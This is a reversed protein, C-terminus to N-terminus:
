FTSVKPLHGTRLPDGVKRDNRSELPKRRSRTTSEIHRSAKPTEHQRQRVEDLSPLQAAPAGPQPPSSNVKKAKDNRSAGNPEQPGSGKGSSSQLPVITLASLILAFSISLSTWRICLAPLRHLRRM